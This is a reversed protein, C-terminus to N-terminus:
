RNGPELQHRGPNHDSASAYGRLESYRQAQAPTLVELTLLHYKLHTARLTAQTNGIAEVLTTLSAPTITKNAFRHDLATEQAILKEGIAISEATMAAFLAEIRDRQDANLDLEKALEVTHRPGPYGNLEAALALSMGLGSRLDAIQQDSLAKIARTEFGAYPSHSQAFCESSVLSFTTVVGILGLVRRM